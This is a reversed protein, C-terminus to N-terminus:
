IRIIIISIIIIDIISIIIFMSFDHYYYVFYYYRLSYACYTYCSQFRAIPRHLWGALLGALLHLGCLYRLTCKVRLPLLAPLRGVKTEKNM